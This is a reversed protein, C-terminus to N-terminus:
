GGVPFSNKNFSEGHGTGHWRQIGGLLSVFLDILHYDGQGKGTRVTRGLETDKMHQGPIAVYFFANLSAYIYSQGM